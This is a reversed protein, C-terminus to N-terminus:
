GFIFPYLYLLPTCYIDSVKGTMLHDVPSIIIIWLNPMGCDLYEIPRKVENLFVLHTCKLQRAFHM